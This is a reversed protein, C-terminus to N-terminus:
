KECCNFPIPVSISIGIDAIGGFSKTYWEGAQPNHKSLAEILEGLPVMFAGEKLYGSKEPAEGPPLLQTAHIVLGGWAEKLFRPQGDATPFPDCEYKIRIRTTGIDEM